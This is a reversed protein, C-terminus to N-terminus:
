DEKRAEKIAENAVFVADRGYQILDDIRFHLSTRQGATLERAFEIMTEKLYIRQAETLM